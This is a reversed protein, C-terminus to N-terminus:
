TLGQVPTSGRGWVTWQNPCISNPILLGIRWLLPIKRVGPSEHSLHRIRRPTHDHAESQFNGSNALSRRHAFVIPGSAAGAAATVPANLRFLDCANGLVLVADPRTLVLVGTRKLNQRIRDRHSNRLNEPDAAGVLGCFAQGAVRQRNGDLLTRFGELQDISHTTFTAM